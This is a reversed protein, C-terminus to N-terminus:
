VNDFNLKKILEIIKAAAVEAATNQNNSNCISVTENLVSIANIITQNEM